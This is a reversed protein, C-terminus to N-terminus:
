RTSRRLGSSALDIMKPAELNPLSESQQMEKDGKHIITHESTTSTEGKCVVNSEPLEIPLQTSPNKQQLEADPSKQPIEWSGTVFHGTPLNKSKVLSEQLPPM